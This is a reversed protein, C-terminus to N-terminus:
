YDTHCQQCNVKDRIVKDKYKNVFPKDGEKRLQNEFMDKMHRTKVQKMLFQNMEQVRQLKEQLQKQTLNNLELENRVREEREVAKQHNRNEEKAKKENNFQSKILQKEVDRIEKIKQKAIENKDIPLTIKQKIYRKM